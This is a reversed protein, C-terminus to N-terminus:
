FGLGLAARGYEDHFVPLRDIVWRALVDSKVTRTDAMRWFAEGNNIEFLMTLVTHKPEDSGPTPEYNVHGLEVGFREFSISYCRPEEVFRAQVQWRKFFAVRNPALWRFNESPQPVTSKVTDLLELWAAQENM